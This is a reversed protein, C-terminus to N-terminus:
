LGSMERKNGSHAADLWEKNYLSIPLKPQWINVSIDM